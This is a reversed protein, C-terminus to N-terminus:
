KMIAMDVVMDVEKVEEVGGMMHVSLNKMLGVVEQMDRHLVDTAGFSTGCVEHMHRNCTAIFQEKTLIKPQDMIKMGVKPEIKIGLQDLRQMKWEKQKAIEVAEDFTKPQKLEVKLRLSTKLSEVFRNKKLIMPPHESGGLAIHWREWLENFQKVYAEVCQDEHQVLSQQISEWVKNPDEKKKFRNLFAQRAGEYTMNQPPQHAKFQGEYDKFWLRADNKLCFFFIRLVIVM